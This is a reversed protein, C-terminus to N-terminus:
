KALVEVQFVFVNNDENAEIWHHEPDVYVKILYTGSQDPRWFKDFPDNENENRVQGSVEGAKGELTGVWIPNTLDSQHYIDAELYTSFTGDGVNDFEGWLQVLQGVKITRNGNGNIDASVEFDALETQLQVFFRDTVVVQDGVYHVLAVSLRNHEASVEWQGALGAHTQDLAAEDVALASSFRGDGYNFEGLADKKTSARLYGEMQLVGGVQVLEGSVDILAGAVEFTGGPKVLVPTESEHVWQPTGNIKLLLATLDAAPAPTSVQAAELSEDFGTASM